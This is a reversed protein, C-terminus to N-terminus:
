SDGSVSELAEMIREAYIEESYHKMIYERGSPFKTNKNAEIAPMIDEWKDVVIGCGSELVYEACKGDASCIVPVDCALSELCQRQSGGWYSSTLVTYHSKNYLSVLEEPHVVERVEVDNELCVEWTYEEIGPQKRGVALGKSGLAKAFQDHRKWAAFTAPYIGLWEKELKMPKYLSTNTGFARAPNYGENTLIEEWDDSEVLIKDFLDRNPHSPDGGAFCLVKPVEIYPLTNEWFPESFAGWCLLVDPKWEKVDKVFGPKDPYRFHKVEHDNKIIEVAAYLGDRWNTLDREYEVQWIFAVKM